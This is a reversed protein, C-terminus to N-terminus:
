EQAQLLKKTYLEINPYSTDSINFISLTFDQRLLKLYEKNGKNDILPKFYHYHQNNPLGDDPAPMIREFQIGPKGKDVNTEINETPAVIVDSELFDNDVIGQTNNSIICIYISSDLDLYQTDVVCKRYRNDHEDIIFHNPLYDPTLVKELLSMIIKTLRTMVETLNNHDYDMIKNISIDPSITQLAGTLHCLELYMYFPHIQAEPQLLERLVGAYSSYIQVRMIDALQTFNLEGNKNCLGLVRDKVSQINDTMYKVIESIKYNLYESVCVNLIPPIFQKNFTKKEGKSVIKGITIWEYKNHKEQKSPHEFIIKTRWLKVNLSKEQSDRTEGHFRMQKKIFPMKTHDTQKDDIAPENLKVKMVGLFVFFERSQLTEKSIPTDDAIANEPINLWTGYKLRLCAYNIKFINMKLLENNHDITSLGWNYPTQKAQERENNLINRDSAQFHHPHLAMGESWLIPANYTM